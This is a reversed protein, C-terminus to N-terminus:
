REIIWCRDIWWTRDASHWIDGHSLKVWGSAGHREAQKQAAKLTSFVGPCSGGIPEGMNSIRLVYVCIFGHEDMEFGLPTEFSSSIRKEDM